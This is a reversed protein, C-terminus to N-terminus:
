CSLQVLLNTDFVGVTKKWGYHGFFLFVSSYFEPRAEFSMFRTAMGNSPGCHSLSRASLVRSWALGKTPKSVRGLHALFWQPDLSLISAINRVLANFEIFRYVSRKKNLSVQVCLFSEFFAFVLIQPIVFYFTILSINAWWFLHTMIPICYLM